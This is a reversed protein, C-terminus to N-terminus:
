SFINTGDNKIANIFMRALIRGLHDMHKKVEEQSRGPYRRFTILIGNLAAFFCHSIIRTNDRAGLKRFLDDFIDLLSRETTNIKDLLVEHVSGELMFHTMMKFFQENETLYTIFADATEELTATREGAYQERFQHILRAAGRLFAEVFLHQQDPFHRYILAPSIGAEKAIDRMSVKPFPKMSFVREAADVIATKRVLRKQDRSGDPYNKQVTKMNM